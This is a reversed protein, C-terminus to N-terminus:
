GQWDGERFALRERKSTGLSLRKEALHCYSFNTSKPNFHTLNAFIQRLKQRGNPASDKAMQRLKHYFKELDPKILQALHTNRGKHYVFDLQHGVKAGQDPDSQGPRNSVAQQPQNTL